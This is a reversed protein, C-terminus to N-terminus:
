GFLHSYNETTLQEWDPLGDICPISKMNHNGRVVFRVRYPHVSASDYKSIIGTDMNAVHPYKGKNCVDAAVYPDHVWNEASLDYRRFIRMTENFAERQAIAKQLESLYPVAFKPRGFTEIGFIKENMEDLATNIGVWGTEMPLGFNDNNKSFPIGDVLVGFVKDLYNLDLFPLSVLSGNAGFYVVPLPTAVWNEFRLFLPAVGDNESKALKAAYELAESQSIGMLVFQQFRAEKM